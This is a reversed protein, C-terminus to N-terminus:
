DIPHPWDKRINKEYTRDKEHLYMILTFYIRTPGPSAEAKLGNLGLETWKNIPDLKLACCAPKLRIPTAWGM